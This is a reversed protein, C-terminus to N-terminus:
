RISSPSEHPARLSNTQPSTTNKLNCNVVGLLAAVNGTPDSLSELLAIVKCFRWTGYFLAFERTMAGGM